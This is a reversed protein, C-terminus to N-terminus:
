LIDILKNLVEFSKNNISDWYQKYSQRQVDDSTHEDSIARLSLFPVNYHNCVQAIAASEMDCALTDPNQRLLRQDEELSVFFQDGTAILGKHYKCGQFAKEAAEILFSDADFREPISFMKATQPGCWIDHFITQSAVVFDRVKVSSVVSGACGTNIIYDPKATLILETAAIAANVKGIGSCVVNGSFGSKKLAEVEREMAVIVGVTM